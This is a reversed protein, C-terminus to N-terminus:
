RSKRIITTIVQTGKQLNRNGRRSNQRVKRVRRRLGLYTASGTGLGSAGLGIGKIIAAQQEETPQEPSLRKNLLAALLMDGFGPAMGRSVGFLFPGFTNHPNSDEESEEQNLLGALFLELSFPIGHEQSRQQSQLFHYYAGAAAPTIVAGGAALSRMM